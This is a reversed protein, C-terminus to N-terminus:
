VKPLCIMFFTIYKAKIAITATVNEAQPAEQKELWEHLQVFGAANNSFVKHKLKGTLQLLCANFKVKAIDIGLCPLNM